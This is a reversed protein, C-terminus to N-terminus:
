LSRGDAVSEQLRDQVIRDDVVLIVRVGPEGKSASEPEIKRQELGDEQIRQM